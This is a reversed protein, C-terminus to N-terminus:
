GAQMAEVSAGPTCAPSSPQGAVGSADATAVTFCNGPAGGLEAAPIMASTGVAAPRPQPPAQPSLVTVVYSAGADGTWTLQVGEAVLTAQVDGPVAAGTGTAAADTATSESTRSAPQGAGEGTIVVWAVGIILVVLVGLLVIV